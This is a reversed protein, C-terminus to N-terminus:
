CAHREGGSRDPRDPRDPRDTRGKRESRGQHGPRQRLAGRLKDLARRRTLAVTGRHLGLIKAAQDITYGDLDVLVVVGAQRVTLKRLLRVTELESARRELGGDDWHAGPPPAAGGGGRDPLGGEGTFEVDAVLVQRRERRWSDRVVSLLSSFAYAYPEPHALFNEPRAALKLYVEHVADEASQRSGALMAARRYLRHLLECFVDDFSPDPSHADKGTTSSSTVM